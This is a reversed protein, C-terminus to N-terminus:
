GVFDVDEIVGPPIRVLLRGTGTIVGKFTSPHGLCGVSVVGLMMRKVTAM